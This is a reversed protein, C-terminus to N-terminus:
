KIYKKENIKQVLKQSKNGAQKAKQWQQLAMDKEGKLFLIDGYHELYVGNQDENNALAREQWILAEALKNQKMLVFAYTDALSSNQPLGKVAKAALQEAKILNYDRLALYYAYNSLILYNDPALAISKEFAADAEKLKQQDIFVEAQLAYIMAKLNVDDSELSTASKLEYAAEANKGNRHLAFARYYYIIAQNPFYTLANDSTKIAAEYDGTLTQLGLLKEYAIYTQDSSKLVKEYQEKALHYKGQQYLVDGYLVLLKEDEPNLKLATQSLELADKALVPNAAKQMMLGIMKIKIPNPMAPNAFADKLSASALDNKGQAHYVDAFALDIEYNGGDAGKAKLLLKIAEDYKKQDLLKGSVSIMARVDQPNDSLLKEDGKEDNFKQQALTLQSSSGFKGEIEKYVQKSEENKGLLFLATAKDFYYNESEPALQILQNLTALLSQNNGNNKYIESLLRLYWENKPNIAIAKKINTEAILLKQQRYNLNALEFLSADHNPNSAIIQNFNSEAKPYNEAMKERLGAFYLEKVANETLPKAPTQAFALGSWFSLILFAGLRM